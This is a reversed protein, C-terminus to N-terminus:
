GLYCGPQRQCKAAKIESCAKPFGACTSNWHCGPTSQCHFSAKGACAHFGGCTKSWSQWYCGQSLGCTFQNKSACTDWSYPAGTCSGSAFCGSGMTCTLPDRQACPTAAGICSSAESRPSGAPVAAAPKPTPPEDGRRAIRARDGSSVIRQSELMEFAGADTRRSTGGEAPVSAAWHQQGLRRNSLDLHTELSRQIEGSGGMSYEIPVQNEDLFEVKMEVRYTIFAVPQGAQEGVRELTFAAKGEASLANAHGLLRALRPGEVVWTEGVAVPKAPYFETQEVFPERLRAKQKEHPEHGLMTQKWGGEIREVLLTEGALPGDQTMSETPFGDREYTSKWWSEAVTYRLLSLESGTTQLVELETISLSEHSSRARVVEKGQEMTFTASPVKWENRTQIITGQHPAPGRLDYTQADLRGAAAALLITVALRFMTSDM